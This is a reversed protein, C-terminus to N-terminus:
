AGKTRGDTWDANAILAAAARLQRLARGYWWALKLLAGLEWPRRILVRVVRTVAHTPDEFAALASRPLTCHAPDVIARIAIFPIHHAHALAAIAATEMDVAACSFAEGLAQKHAHDTVPYQSTLGACCVPSLARLCAFLQASFAPDTAFSEGSAADVCREYLVLTGTKLNPALAGATGWSILGSVGRDLLQQACCLAAEPGPGSCLLPWQASPMRCSAAEAPLAAIVGFVRANM